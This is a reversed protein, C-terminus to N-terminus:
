GRRWVLRPFILIKKLNRWDCRLTFPTFYCNGKLYGPKTETTPHWGYYHSNVPDALYYCVFHFRILRFDVPFRYNNFLINNVNSLKLFYHLGRLSMQSYFKSDLEFGILTIVMHQFGVFGKRVNGSLFFTVAACCPFVIVCPPGNCRRVVLFTLDVRLVFLFIGKCLWYLFKTSSLKKRPFTHSNLKHHIGLM